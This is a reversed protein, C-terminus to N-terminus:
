LETQRFFYNHMDRYSFIEIKTVRMGGLKRQLSNFHQPTRQQLVVDLQSLRSVTQFCDWVYPYLYKIDKSIFKLRLEYTNDLSRMSNKREKRLIMRLQNGFAASFKRYLIGSEHLTLKPESVNDLREDTGYTNYLCFTSLKGGFNGIWPKKRIFSFMSFSVCFSKM